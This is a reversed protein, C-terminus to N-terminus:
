ILFVYGRRVKQWVGGRTRWFPVGGRTPFIKRGGVKKLKLM